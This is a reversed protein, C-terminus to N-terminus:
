YSETKRLTTKAPETAYPTLTDIQGASTTPESGILLVKPKPNLLHPHLMAHSCSSIHNSWHLHSGWRPCKWSQDVCSGQRHWSCTLTLTLFHLTFNFKFNIITIHSGNRISHHKTLDNSTPVLSNAPCGLFQLETAPLLM